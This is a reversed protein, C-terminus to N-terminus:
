LISPSLDEKKPLFVGWDSCLNCNIQGTSKSATM